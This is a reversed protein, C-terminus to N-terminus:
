ASRGVVARIEYANVKRADSGTARMYRGGLLIVTSANGDREHKTSGEPCTWERVSLPLKLLLHGCNGRQKALKHNKLMGAVNLPLSEAVACSQELFDHPQQRFSVM